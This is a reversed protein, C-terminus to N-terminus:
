VSMCLFYYWLWDSVRGTVGVSFGIKTLPLNNQRSSDGGDFGM